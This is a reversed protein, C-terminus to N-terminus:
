ELRPRVDRAFREVVDLAVDAREPVHDFTFHTASAEVYRRIGDASQRPTGRTALAGPGDRFASPLKVGIGVIFRGGSLQGAERGRLPQAVSARHREHRAHHAHHARRPVLAGHRTGLLRRALEDPAQSRSRPRIRVEGPSPDGRALQAVAFRDRAGRGARGNRHVHGPNADRGGMVLSFGYKMLTGKRAFTRPRIRSRNSQPTVMARFM